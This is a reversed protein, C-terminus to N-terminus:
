RWSKLFLWMVLLVNRWGSAGEWIQIRDGCLLKNCLLMALSSECPASILLVRRVGGTTALRDGFLYVKKDCGVLWGVLGFNASILPECKCLVHWRESILYLVSVSLRSIGLLPEAAHNAHYKCHKKELSSCSRLVDDGALFQSIIM